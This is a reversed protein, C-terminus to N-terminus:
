RNEWWARAVLSVGYFAGGDYGRYGYGDALYQAILGRASPETLGYTDSRLRAAVYEGHSTM